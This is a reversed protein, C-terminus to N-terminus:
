KRWTKLELRRPGGTDTWTVRVRVERVTAVRAYPVVDWGVAFFGDGEVRHGGVDFNVNDSHAGLALAPDAASRLVLEELTAEALAGATSRRSAHNLERTMTAFSSFAATLGVILLAASVMVEILSFARRVQRM